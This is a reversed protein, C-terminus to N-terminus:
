NGNMRKERIVAPQMGVKIGRTATGSRLARRRARADAIITAARQMGGKALAALLGLQEIPLISEGSKGYSYRELAAGAIVDFAQKEARSLNKWWKARNAPNIPQFILKSHHAGIYQNSAKYFEMMAPEFSVGLFICLRRIVPEAKVLLDEYRLSMSRDAPMHKFASEILHLKLRWDLASVAACDKDPDMKRWSDFVDRGDRVIHIFSAQPFLAHLLDIRRFFLSKDGWYPKGDAHAYSGYLQQLFESLGLREQEVLWTLFTERDYNWLGYESSARLYDVIRTITPRDVLGEAVYRRTLLPMLFRAEEPIAILSHANLLMRLLTTGSRQAGVIFIPFKTVM